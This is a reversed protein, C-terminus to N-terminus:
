GVAYFAYEIGFDKLIGAAKEMVPLDNKSGMMIAVQVM